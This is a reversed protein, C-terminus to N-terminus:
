SEAKRRFFLSLALGILALVAVLTYSFNIGSNLSEMATANNVLCLKQKYEMIGVFISSGMASGILMMTNMIATGHSYYEQPLQNLTNTQSPTLLSALGIIVCCYFVIPLIINTSTTMCSISFNAVAMIGFGAPVIVRPGFRDYLKGFVPPLLAGIIGGPLVALGAEFTTLGLINETFMPMLVFNAFLVMYTITILAIGLSFMPYSFARVNLLPNSIKLQRLTFAIISAIGILLFVVGGATDTSFVNNLGYIAGGFGITSLILSTIDLKIKVTETINKLYFWGIMISIITLPILLIFIWRWNLAQIVLGGYTPGIAPAFLVILLAAGMASGRKEPPNLVMITNMMLPLLVGTGVAQILRGTLLLWFNSASAAFITGILFVTMASLFLQRTTIRQILFATVPVFTGMILMFGATLWQITNASVSFVTMLDSLAVNIITENLLGLFTGIKLTTMIMSVNTNEM